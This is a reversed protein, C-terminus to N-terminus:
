SLERKESRRDQKEMTGHGMHSAFQRFVLPKVLQTWAVEKKPRRVNFRVVPVRDTLLICCVLQWSYFSADEVTM